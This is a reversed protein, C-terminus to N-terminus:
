DSSNVELKEGTKLAYAYSLGGIIILGPAIILGTYYSKTIDYVMGWIPPGVATGLSGSMGVVGWIKAYDKQGFIKGTFLPPLVTQFGFTFSMFVMSLALIAYSKFPMLLFASVSLIIVGLLPLQLGIKDSTMGLLVKAGIMSISLISMLTGVQLMTMGNGVYFAPLHQLLGGVSAMLVGSFVLLYLQSTKLGESYPVGGVESSKAKRAAEESYGYAVLGLDQPKNRLLFMSVPVTFVFWSASLLLYGKRWGNSAIFSPLIMSFVAAGLGSASMVIGMVTGRKAVFWTNVAIAANITTSGILFVGMLAGVIYFSVLSSCVSLAIFGLTCWIGGVTAITQIGYKQISRGILPITFMAVINILSYYITFSSRSYQFEKTIPAVFFSLCTTGLSTAVLLFAAGVAVM